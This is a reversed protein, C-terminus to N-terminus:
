GGKTGKERYGDTCLWRGAGRAMTLPVAKEFAENGEDRTM